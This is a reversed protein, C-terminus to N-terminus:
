SLFHAEVGAHAVPRSPRAWDEHGALIAVEKGREVDWLRATHDASATVVREGDPSFAASNVSDAHAFVAIEDGTQATLGNQKDNDRGRTGISDLRSSRPCLRLHM